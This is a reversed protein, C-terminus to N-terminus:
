EEDLGELLHDPIPPGDNPPLDVLLVLDSQDDPCREQWPPMERRCTPCVKRDMDLSMGSPDKEEDGGGKKVFVM